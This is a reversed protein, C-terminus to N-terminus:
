TNLGELENHAKHEHVVNCLVFTKNQMKELLTFIIEAHHGWSNAYNQSPDNQLCTYPHILTLNIPSTHGCARSDLKVFVLIYKTFSSLNEDILITKM